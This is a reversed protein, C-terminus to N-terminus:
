PWRTKPLDRELGLFLQGLRSAVLCRALWYWLALAPAAPGAVKAWYPQFGLLGLSHSGTAWAWWALWGSQAHLRALLM